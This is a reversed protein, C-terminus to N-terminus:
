QDYFLVNALNAVVFLWLYFSAAAGCVALALGASRSRRASRTERERRLARYMLVAATIIWAFVVVKLVLLSGSGASRRHAIVEVEAFVAAIATPVMAWLYPVWSCGLNMPPVSLDTQQGCEPCTVVTGAAPLGALTYGCKVCVRESM